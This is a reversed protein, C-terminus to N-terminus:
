ALRLAPAKGALIGHKACLAHFRLLGEKERGAFGFGLNERFYRACFAAEFESQGAIVEDLHLLNHDRLARLRDAIGKADPVEPRILWLAFIMPLGTTEKWWEGLDRFRYESSHRERFRIAQDGIMLRAKTRSIVAEDRAPHSLLRPTLGEEGLLCHLLNVSTRSTPDLAIEEIEGLAGAQVLVVSHVPGDAGVAVGGGAPMAWSPGRESGARAPRSGVGPVGVHCPNFSM